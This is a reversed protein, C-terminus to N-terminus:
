PTSAVGKMRRSQRGISALYSLSMVYCFATENDYRCVLSWGIDTVGSVFLGAALRGRAIIRHHQSGRLALEWGSLRASFFRRQVLSAKRAWILGCLSGFSMRMILQKFMKRPVPNVFAIQGSAELPVGIVQRYDAASRHPASRM